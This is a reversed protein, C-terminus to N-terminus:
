NWAYHHRIRLTKSRSAKLFAVLAQMKEAWAAKRRQLQRPERRAANLVGVAATLVESASVTVWVRTDQGKAVSFNAYIGTADVFRQGEPFWQSAGRLGMLVMLEREAYSLCFERRGTSLTMRLRDAM